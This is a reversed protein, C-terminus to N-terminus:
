TLDNFGLDQEIVNQEGAKYITDYLCFPINVMFNGDTTRLIITRELDDLSIVDLVTDWDIQALSLSLPCALSELTEQKHSKNM